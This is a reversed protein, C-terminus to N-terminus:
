CQLKNLRDTSRDKLISPTVLSAYAQKYATIAEGWKKEALLDRIQMDRAFHCALEIQIRRNANRVLYNVGYTHALSADTVANAYFQGPACGALVALSIVILLCKLM